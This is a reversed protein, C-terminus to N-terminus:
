GVPLISSLSINYLIIILFRRILFLCFFFFIIFDALAHFFTYCFRIETRKPEALFTRPVLCPPIDRVGARRPCILQRGKAGSAGKGGGGGRTRRGAGKRAIKCSGRPVCLLARANASRPPSREETGRSKDALRSDFSFSTHSLAKAGEGVGEM